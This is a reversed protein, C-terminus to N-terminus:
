SALRVPFRDDLSGHGLVEGSTGKDMVRQSEVVQPGTQPTQDTGPRHRCLGRRAPDDLALRLVKPFPVRGGVVGFRLLAETQFPQDAIRLGVTDLTLIAVDIGHHRVSLSTSQGAALAALM